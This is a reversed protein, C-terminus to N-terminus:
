YAGPGDKYSINIELPTIILEYGQPPLENKQSFVIRSKEYVKNEHNVLVRYVCARAQPLKSVIEWQNPWQFQGDTYSISKPLPLLTWQPVSDQKLSFRYFSIDESQELDVLHEKIKADVKQYRNNFFVLTGIILLLLGLLIFGFIKLAKKFTKM